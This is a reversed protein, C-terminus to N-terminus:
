LDDAPERPCGRPLGSAVDLYRPLAVACARPRFAWARLLECYWGFIARPGSARCRAHASGLVGDSLGRALRSSPTRALRGARLHDARGGHCHDASSAAPAVAAVAHRDM